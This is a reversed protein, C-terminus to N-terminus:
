SIARLDTSSVLFFGFTLSCYIGVSLYGVYGLPLSILLAIIMPVFKYGCFAMLDYLKLYTNINLIYLAMMILVTELIMICLSWSAQMGLVEPSFRNELGMMYASLLIYSVFAM